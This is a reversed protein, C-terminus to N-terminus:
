EHGAGDKVVIYINDSLITDTEWMREFEGVEARRNYRTEDPDANGALPDVLYIHREDYGVAVVYHTDGPIDVFVIVPNGESLRQKLSDISGHYAEAFYGRREFIHVISKAPVFGFIRKIEPYLREGDAQEGFHRLLYASAYAACKGDTQRVIYNGKNECFFEPPFSRIEINDRRPNISGFCLAGALICLTAAAAAIIVTKRFKMFSRGGGMRGLPQPEHSYRLRRM